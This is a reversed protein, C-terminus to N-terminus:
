ISDIANGGMYNDLAGQDDKAGSGHNPNVGTSGSLVPAKPNNSLYGREVMHPIHTAAVKNMALEIFMKLTNMNSAIKEYYGQMVETAEAQTKGKLGEPNAMQYMQQLYPWAVGLMENYTQKGQEGGGFHNVFYNENTAARKETQAKEQMEQIRKDAREDREAERRISAERIDKDIIEQVVKNAYGEAELPQWGKEIASRYTNTWLFLNDRISDQRKKEEEYYKEYENKPPDVPEKPPEAYQIVPAQFGEYGKKPTLFGLAEKTDFTINGDEGKKYWHSGYVKPPEFQPSPDNKGPDSVPDQGNGGKPTTQPTSSQQASSQPAGSQPNLDDEAPYEDFYANAMEGQNIQDILEDPM